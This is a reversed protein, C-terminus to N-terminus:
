RHVTNGKLPLMLDAQYAGTKGTPKLTLQGDDAQNSPRYYYLIASNVNFAKGTKDEVLISVKQPKNQVLVPLQINLSWGLSAMHQRKKLIEAMNQGAEYYKTNTLGPATVIAMSVMFFNVALVVTLIVFWMIILPNKWAVSWDRTDQNIEAM